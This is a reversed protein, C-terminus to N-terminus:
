ASNDVEGAAGAAQEAVASRPARAASVAHAVKPVAMTAILLASAVYTAADFWFALPLARGLFAVFLGALPYGIVDALTEAIWTASNATLLEDEDVIRPLVATRAPRFFISISTILFVLPYVLILNTVAAIPVLLVLSARLLDSVVMVEKQDWRDVFTGAVPGLLLNPLTAALFVLGVAVPSGTATLVLFAM